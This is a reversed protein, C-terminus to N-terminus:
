TSMWWNFLSAWSRPNRWPSQDSHHGWATWLLCRPWSCVPWCIVNQCRMVIGIDLTLIKSLFSAALHEIVAVTVFKPTIVWDRRWVVGGLEPPPLKVGALVRGIDVGGQGTVIKHCSLLWFYTNYSALADFCDSLLWLWVTSQCVPPSTSSHIRLKFYWSKTFFFCILLM